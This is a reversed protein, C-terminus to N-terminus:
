LRGGGIGIRFWSLGTWAEGDSKKTIRKLIVKGKVSLDELNDDRLTKGGLGQICRGSGM